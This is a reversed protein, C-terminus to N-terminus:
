EPVKRESEPLKTGNREAKREVRLNAACL